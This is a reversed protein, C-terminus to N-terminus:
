DIIIRRYYALVFMYVGYAILGLAVIGLIFAGFPQQELSYLAGSLGAAEKAQYQIAAQVLFIGIISFVVGRATLGVQGLRTATRKMDQSMEETKIKELFKKTYAKYFQYFAFGIFGLGIAAVLYQGLPQALLTATWEQSTQDDDSNGGDSGIIQKAAFYALSSYIVGVIAFGIRRAIGKFDSGKNETDKIAEVFRWVAHGVLGLAVIGLLIQGYPQHLITELAGRSGTAQNRTQFVGMAAVIGIVIYVTGKAAYGFRALPIIWSRAANSIRRSEEEIGM